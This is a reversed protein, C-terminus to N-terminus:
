QLLARAQTFDIKGEYLAKGSIIGWIFPLQKQIAKLDDLCSVGGSLIINMDKYVALRSAQEINVGKLTGDRSIDTYIMWRVGKAALEQVFEIFPLSTKRQWGEVAVFGDAVDVSVAIKSSGCSVILEELFGKTTAKTGVIIREVGLAILKKAKEIDRLGGGVQIKTAVQALIAEILPMNDGEGLAASLDVIHLLKAQQKQWKLAVEVPDNGYVVCDRPNGKLFRVVNGQYVDIAPIILM